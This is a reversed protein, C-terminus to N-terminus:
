GDIQPVPYMAEVFRHCAYRAYMRPSAVIGRWASLSEEHSHRHHANYYSVLDRAVRDEGSDLLGSVTTLVSGNYVSILDAQLGIKPRTYPDYRRLCGMLVADARFWSGLEMLVDLPIRGSSYPKLMAMIEADDSPLPIVEFCGRDCLAQGFAQAMDDSQEKYRTENFFPLVLVRKPHIRNPGGYHRAEINLQVPKEPLFTCSAGCALLAIGLVVWGAASRNTNRSSEIRSRQTRDTM